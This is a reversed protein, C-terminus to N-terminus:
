PTPNPIFAGSLGGSFAQSALEGHEVALSILTGPPYVPREGPHLSLRVNRQASTSQLRAVVEPAGPSGAPAVSLSWLAGANGQGYFGGLRFALGAPVLLQKVEVPAHATPAIAEGFLLAGPVETAADGMTPPTFVLGNAVVGLYQAVQGLIVATAELENTTGTLGQRVLELLDRAVPDAVQLSSTNDDEVVGTLATGDAGVLQTEAM